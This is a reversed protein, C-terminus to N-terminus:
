FAGVTNAMTNAEAAEGWGEFTMAGPGKYNQFWIKVIDTVGTFNTDLDALSTAGALPTDDTVALLKDDM